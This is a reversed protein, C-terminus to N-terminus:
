SVLTIGIKKFFQDKLTLTNVKLNQHEWVKFEM